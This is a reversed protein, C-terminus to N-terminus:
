GTAKGWIDLVVADEWEDSATLKYSIRDGKKIKVQDSQESSKNESQGGIEEELVPEKREDKRHNSDIENEDLSFEQGTKILRNPSVRVYVNGHRVFVVKGDQFMVKGPGLWREQGERKYYVRDDKEFIQESARIKCRLARRIREDAESEVFAKRAAHLANLHNALLESSTTGALAAVNENMINPLNPNQGHREHVFVGSAGGPSSNM